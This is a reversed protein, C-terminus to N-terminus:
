QTFLFYANELMFHIYHICSFIASVKPELSCSHTFVKSWCTSIIIQSLVSGKLGLDFFIYVLTTKVGKKAVRINDQSLLPYSICGLIFMCLTLFSVEEMNLKQKFQYIFLCHFFLFCLSYACQFYYLFQLTSYSLLSYCLFPTSEGRNSCADADMLRETHLVNCLFIYFGHAGTNCVVTM